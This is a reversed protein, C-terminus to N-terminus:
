HWKREKIRNQLQTILQKLMELSPIESFGKSFKKSVVEEVFKAIRAYIILDNKPFILYVVLPVFVDVNRVSDTKKVCIDIASTFHLTKPIQVIGRIKAFNDPGFDVGQMLFHFIKLNLTELIEGELPSCNYLVTPGKTEDFISVVFHLNDLIQNNSIKLNNPQKTLSETFSYSM